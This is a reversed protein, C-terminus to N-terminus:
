LEDSFAYKKTDKKICAVISRYIAQLSLAQCHMKGIHQEQFIYIQHIDRDFRSWNLHDLNNHPGVISSRIIM